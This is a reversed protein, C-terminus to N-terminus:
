GRKRHTCRLGAAPFSAPLILDARTATATMFYDQVMLFDPAQIWKTVEEKEVKEDVLPVDVPKDQEKKEERDEM